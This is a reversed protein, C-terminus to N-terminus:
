RRMQESALVDVYIRALRDLYRRQEAAREHQTHGARAAARRSAKETALTRL